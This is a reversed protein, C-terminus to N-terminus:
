LKLLYSYLIVGTLHEVEKFQEDTLSSGDDLVIVTSHGTAREHKEAAGILTERSFGSFDGDNMECEGSECLLTGLGPRKGVIEKM